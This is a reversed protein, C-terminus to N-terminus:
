RNPPLHRRHSTPNQCAQQERRQGRLSALHMPDLDFRPQAVVEEIGGSATVLGHQLLEDLGAEVEIHLIGLAIGPQDQGGVVAMASRHFLQQLGTGVGADLIRAAVGGQHAGDEPSTRM